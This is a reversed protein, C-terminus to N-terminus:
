QRQSEHMGKWSARYRTAMAGLSGPMIRVSGVVTMFNVDGGWRPVLHVHLHGPVGAGAARGQNIGFNIGQPDLTRQMLDAAVETLRWLAARQAPTYDLLTPRAEGLAALLHGNAYPYANLLILGGDAASAASEGRRVIVHNREDGAPDLWYDRLFSGSSSSPPGSKKEAASTAELYELRWPAQLAPPGPPAAADSRPDPM